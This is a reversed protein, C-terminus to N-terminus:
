PLRLKVKFFNDNFYNIIKVLYFNLKFRERGKLLMINDDFVFKKSLTSCYNIFQFFQKENYEFRLRLARLSVGQITGLGQIFHYVFFELDELLELTVLHNNAKVFSGTKRILARVNNNKDNCFLLSVAYLGLGLHPKLEWNLKNHRSEHGKLAFNTIEYNIYGNSELCELACFWLKESDISNDFDRLVFGEEECIFDSFCIHEPMYSLLEKLDRKLHSKKQLPMNVTMDINLDFPFKRINNILINLKEYSIEPIGVIKRFELSFSQVNLNIRTICFEDLLKFKEFDVYGPIIELTFEELLELNIYKSLSTFIFKLNDQRSLCFDVHKIYLTKVIPHGLLILHCKLEELIRNFISFDKCCFSLNIYLSLEVLPLLDVRM